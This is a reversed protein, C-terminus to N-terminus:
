DIDPLIPIRMKKGLRELLIRKLELEAQYLEAVQRVNLINLFEKHYKKALALEKERLEFEQEMAKRLDEDTMVLTKRRLKMIQQRLEIQEKKYQNFLPIFVKEQEPSLQLRQRIIENRMKEVEARDLMKRQAQLDNYVLGWFVGLWIISYLINKM